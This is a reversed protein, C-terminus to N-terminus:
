GQQTHLPSAGGNCQTLHINRIGVRANALSTGNPYPVDLLLVIGNVLFKTKDM